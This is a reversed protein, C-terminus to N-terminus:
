KLCSTPYSNNQDSVYITQCKAPVDKDQGKGTIATAKLILFESATLFPRDIPNIGAAIESNFGNSSAPSYNISYYRNDSVCPFTITSSTSTASINCTSASSCTGSVCPNVIGSTPNLNIVNSILINTKQLSLLADQRRQTRMSDMYGSFGVGALIASIAMVIILEILSFGINFKINNYM